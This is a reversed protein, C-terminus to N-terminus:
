KKNKDTKINKIYKLDAEYVDGNSTLFHFKNGNFRISSISTQNNVSETLLKSKIEDLKKNITDEIILKILSYDINGTNPISSQITNNQENEENVYDSFSKNEETVLPKKLKGQSLINDLASGEDQNLPNNVISEYIANPLGKNPTNKTVNLNGNAKSMARKAMFDEDMLVGSKGKETAYKNFASSQTVKMLRQANELNKLFNDTKISSAM